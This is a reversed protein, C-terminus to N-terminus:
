TPGRGWLQCDDYSGSSRATMGAVGACHGLPSGLSSGLLISLPDRRMGMAFSFSAVLQFPTFFLVFDCRALVIIGRMPFKQVM